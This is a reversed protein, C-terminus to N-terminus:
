LMQEISDATGAPHIHRAEDLGRRTPIAVEVEGQDGTRRSLQVAETILASRAAQFPHADRAVTAAGRGASTTAQHALLTAPAEGLLGRPQTSAEAAAVAATQAELAAAVKVEQWQALAGCAEGTLTATAAVEELHRISVVGLSQTHRPPTTGEVKATAVGCTPAAFLVPFMRPGTM